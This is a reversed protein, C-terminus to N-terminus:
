AARFIASIWFFFLVNANLYYFIDLTIVATVQHRLGLSYKVWTNKCQIEEDEEARRRRLERDRRRMEDRDLFPCRRLRTHGAFPFYVSSVFQKCVCVGCVCVCWFWVGCVYVGTTMKWVFGSNAVQQRSAHNWARRPWFDWTERDYKRLYLYKWNPDGRQGAQWKRNDIMMSIM